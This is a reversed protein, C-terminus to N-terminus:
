GRIAPRSCAAITSHEVLKFVTDGAYRILGTKIVGNADEFAQCKQIIQADRSRAAEIAAECDRVELAIAKVGDGHLACHRAIESDPSYATTLVLRVNGQQMVYSARDRVGTELGMRAVPKFGLVKHYFHAAQRANGVYLEVHDWGKIPLFDQNSMPKIGQEEETHAAGAAEGSRWLGCRGPPPPDRWQM